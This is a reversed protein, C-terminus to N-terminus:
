KQPFEYALELEDLRFTPNRKMKLARLEQLLPTSDGFSLQIVAPLVPSLDGYCVGTM